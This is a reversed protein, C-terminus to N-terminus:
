NVAMEQYQQRLQYKLVKGSANRPLEDIEYIVRPIKYGALQQRCFHQLEEHDIKKGDKPVIIAAVTEGWVEHPVGIVAAELIDPHKYLTHEVENSYVNEGGSIIMDKKRDVLTMFGEEDIQALDGTHLWGDRLAKKTEEPKKYYEKMMSEGKIILEGVEGPKVDEGNEDVVRADFFNNPRGSAGLKTKHDEPSLSIGGPGGETLGCMNWFQDTKFMKMVQQLLAVPMPAAGYGCLRISSLDYKEWDQVQLLYNYMTPVGFFLTIKYKEIERLTQEANFEQHIIQTCGLFTATNLYINLQASHFLPAIHFLNDHQDMKYRVMASFGVHLIRHHDLVVGKPLGTTGSTYLIEADDTEVVGANPNDISSSKFESLLVQNDKKICGVIVQLQIKENGGAAGSVIDALDEDAFILVSDSDDIIYRAEHSTLRFNIPVAVGGAKLIAFYVFAFQDSNKMMLSVKDGKKIGFKILAHAISNVQQNYEGYTYEKDKFIIATKGPNNRANRELGDFLNM